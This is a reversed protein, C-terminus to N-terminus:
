RGERNMNQQKQLAVLENRVEHVENEARKLDHMENDLNQMIDYLRM